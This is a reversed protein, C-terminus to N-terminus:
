IGIIIKEFFVVVTQIFPLIVPFAIFLILFLAIIGFREFRDMADALAPPAIAYLLRSGDLPPIPIMNFVFFAINIVVFITLFNIAGSPIGLSFFRLILGVFVAMLLNSLPGAFAVLAAGFKGYKVAYPNFPVPKAAGFVVPSGLLILSIPLILTLFPDIHALPNLTLRGERKATLDGLTHAMWAHSFEHVTIIVVLIVLYFVILVINM